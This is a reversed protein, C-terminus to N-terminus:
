RLPVCTAGSWGRFEGINGEEVSAIGASGLLLCTKVQELKQTLPEKCCGEQTEDQRSHEFGNQLAKGPAPEEAPSDPESGEEGHLSDESLSACSSGPLSNRAFALSAEEIHPARTARLSPFPPNLIVGARSASSLWHATLNDEWGLDASAAMQSM